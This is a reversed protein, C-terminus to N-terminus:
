DALAIILAFLSRLWSALRYIKCLVHQFVLASHYRDLDLVIALRHAQSGSM